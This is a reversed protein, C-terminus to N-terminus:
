QRRENSEKSLNITDSFSFKKMDKTHGNNNLSTVANIIGLTEPFHKEMIEM